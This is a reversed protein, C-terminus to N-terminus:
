LLKSAPVTGVLLKMELCCALFRSRILMLNASNVSEQRSAQWIPRALLLLVKILLRKSKLIQSSLVSVQAQLDLNQSQGPIRQFRSHM